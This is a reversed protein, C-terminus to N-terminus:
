IVYVDQGFFNDYYQINLEVSLARSYVGELKGFRIKLRRELNRYTLRRENLFPGLFRVNGAHSFTRKIM